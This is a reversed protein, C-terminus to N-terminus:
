AKRSFNSLRNALAKMDEEHKKHTIQKDKEHQDELSAIKAEYKMEMSQLETKHGKEKDQVFTKFNREIQRLEKRHDEKMAALRQEFQGQLNEIKQQYDDELKSVRKTMNQNLKMHENMQTERQESLKDQYTDKLVDVSDRYNNALVQNELYKARQLKDVRNEAANKVHNLQASQQEEMLKREERNRTNILNMQSKYNRSAERTVTENQARQGEVRDHIIDMSKENVERKQREIDEMRDEYADILHQKELSSLQKNKEDNRVLQDKLSNIKSDRSRVQDNLRENVKDRFNEFHDNNTKVNKALLRQYRDAIKTNANQVSKDRLYQNDNDADEHNRITDYYKQQWHDEAFKSKRKEESLSRGYSDRVQNLEAVKRAVQDDKADQLIAKEKEHATRLKANNNKVADTLEQRSSQALERLQEDREGLENLQNQILNSRQIASTDKEKKIASQYTDVLIRKETSDEEAKRRSQARHLDRLEQIDRQHNVDRETIVEKNRDQMEALQKEFAETLKTIEKQHRREAARIEENKRKVTEKERTDYEDRTRALEDGTRNVAM